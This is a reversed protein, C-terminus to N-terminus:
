CGNLLFIGIYLQKFTNNVMVQEETYLQNFTDNVMVPEPGDMLQQRKAVETVATAALVLVM